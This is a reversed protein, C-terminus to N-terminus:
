IKLGKLKDQALEYYNANVVSFLESMDENYLDEFYFRAITMQAIEMIRRKNANFLDDETFDEIFEYLTM